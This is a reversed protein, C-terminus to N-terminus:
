IGSGVHQSQSLCGPHLHTLLKILVNVGIYPKGVYLYVISNLVLYALPRGWELETHMDCGTDAREVETESSLM